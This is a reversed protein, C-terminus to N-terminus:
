DRTEFVTLIGSNLEISCFDEIIENSIGVSEGQILDYNNLPYYFGKLTIGCVKETFPILSIYNGYQNDKEIQIKKDILYIKNYRDLMYCSIGANLAFKMNHINSLTHDLRTGIAGLIVIEKAGLKVATEIALHTDTYDKERPFTIVDINTNKYKEILDANVSDYDGLIYDVRCSLKDAYTLGNDAAIIYDFNESNLWEKAWELDLMGGTLILIRKQFSNSLKNKNM